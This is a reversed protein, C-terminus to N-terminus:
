EIERFAVENQEHEAFQGTVDCATLPPANPMTVSRCSCHWLQFYATEVLTAISPEKLQSKGPGTLM